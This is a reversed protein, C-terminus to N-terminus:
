LRVLAHFVYVNLSGVRHDSWNFVFNANLHLGLADTEDFEERHAMHVEKMDSVAGAYKNGEDKKHFIVM